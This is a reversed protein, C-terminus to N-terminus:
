GWSVHPYRVRWFELSKEMVPYSPFFVLLGHPVVRAINGALATATTLLLRGRPSHAPGRAPASPLTPSRPGLGPHAARVLRRGPCEGLAKGLSSLCDDSFSCSALPSSDPGRGPVWGAGRGRGRGWRKDYASSLQVQDPGKPVIGVWIQQKDIVHPNELCVPFPSSASPPLCPHGHPGSGRPGPRPGGM